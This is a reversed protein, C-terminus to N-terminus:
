GCTTAGGGVAIPMGDNVGFGIGVGGVDVGVDIGAGRGGCTVDSVGTEPDRETRPASKTAAGVPTSSAVEVSEAVSSALGVAVSGTRVTTALSPLAGAVAVLAPSGGSSGAGCFSSFSSSSFSPPNPLPTDPVDISMAVM